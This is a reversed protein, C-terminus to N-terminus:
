KRRPQTVVYLIFVTMGVGGLGLVVAKTVGAIVASMIFAALGLIGAASVVVEIVSPPKINNM